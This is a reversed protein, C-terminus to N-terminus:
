VGEIVIPQEYEQYIGKKGFSSHKVDLNLLYYDKTKTGVLIFKFYMSGESLKSSAYVAMREVPGFVEYGVLRIDAGNNEARLLSVMGKFENLSVDDKFKDDTWEYALRTGNASKFGTLFDGILEAAREKDHVVIGPDCGTAFMVLLYIAFRKM